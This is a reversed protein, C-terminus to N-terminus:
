NKKVPIGADNGILVFAGWYYPSKESLSSNDLYALKAERLSASKSKGKSLNKYFNKVIISSSQDDISWLTSIVSQAGGSFFSRALSMVGEGKKIEGINTECASLFVLSANNKMLYLEDGTLREDRFAIWPKENTKDVGAHTSLHVISASSLSAAFQAKTAGTGSFVNGEYYNAIGDIESKSYTLPTYISDYSRRVSVMEEKNTTYALQAYVDDTFTVPAVALLSPEDVVAETLTNQFSHSSAYSIESEKILYANDELSTQLADFPLFSLFDDPSIIDDNPFLREYVAYSLQKQKDIADKDYLPSQFSSALAIVDNKLAELENIEMLEANDKTAFLVYGNDKNSYIGYGDDSSVHYSIRIEDEELSGQLEKLSIIKSDINLDQYIGLSDNIKQIRQKNLLIKENLDHNHSTIENTVENRYAIIEKELQNQENLIKNPIELSQKYKEISQDQLLLFMKNKM